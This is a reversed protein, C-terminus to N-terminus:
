FNLSAAYSLHILAVSMFVGGTFATAYSIYTSKEQFNKYRFPINGTIIVISFIVVMILVKLLSLTVPM